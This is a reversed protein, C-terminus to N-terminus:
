QERNWQKKGQAAISNGYIWIPTRVNALAASFWDTEFSTSLNACGCLKKSSFLYITQNCCKAAIKQM